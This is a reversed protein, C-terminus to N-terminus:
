GWLRGALEPLAAAYRTVDEIRGTSVRSYGAWPGYAGRIAIGQGAMADRLANADPVEVFVFNTQSPLARLGAKAVAEIIMARGELVAARSQDLFAMDDYSAIAAAVGALNGGFSMMHSKIRLANAESTIAYGVRLGAMGYIKSFTRCVIVDSGARVLDIMSNDDPLDTLENYAEDVLLTAHPTVEAAFRRLDTPSILMGTPNNPNCIQVLAAGESVKAAMAPLDVNMDAALPVRISKVGQREGYNVTTDWFLDPCLIAGERGWALAIACLIETSGDGVVVQSPAVRHREAIMATLRELGRDTYYCGMKATESIARLASPAPGYPNENRSLLAQGIKPGFLPEAQAQSAAAALSSLPLASLGGALSAGALFSRRTTPM